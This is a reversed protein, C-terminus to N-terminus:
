RVPTKALGVSINEITKFKVKKERGRPDLYYITQGIEDVNQVRIPFPSDGYRLKDAISRPGRGINQKDRGSEAINIFVEIIALHLKARPERPLADRIKYVARHLPSKTGKRKRALEAGGKSELYYQEDIRRRLDSPLSFWLDDEADTSKGSYHRGALDLYELPNIYAAQRRRQHALLADTLSM